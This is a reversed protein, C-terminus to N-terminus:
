ADEVKWFDEKTELHICVNIVVNRCPTQFVRQFSFDIAHLLAFIAIRSFANALNNSFGDGFHGKSLPPLPRFNFASVTSEEFAYIKLAWM